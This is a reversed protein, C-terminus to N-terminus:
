GYVQRNVTFGDKPKRDLSESPGDGGSEREVGECETPIGERSELRVM